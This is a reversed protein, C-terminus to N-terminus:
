GFMWWVSALVVILQTAIGATFNTDAQLSREFKVYRTLIDKRVKLFFYPSKILDPLVSVFSCLLILISKNIDPLVILAIILGFALAIGVDALAFYTSEKKPKGFKQTETYFHPNWHPIQDLVFHSVFALPIALAPNGIKIAIASGVAVHPLELM